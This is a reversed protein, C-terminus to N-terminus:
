DLSLGLRAALTRAHVLTRQAAVAIDCSQANAARADWTHLEDFTTRLQEVLAPEADPALDATLTQWDRQM